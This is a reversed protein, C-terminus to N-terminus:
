APSAARITPWRYGVINDDADLIIGARSVAVPRMVGEADRRLAYRTRGYGLRKLARIQMRRPLSSM